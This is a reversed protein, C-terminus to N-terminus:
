PLGPPSAAQPPDEILSGRVIRGAGEAIIDLGLPAAARFRFIHAIARAGRAVANLTLSPALHYETIIRMM